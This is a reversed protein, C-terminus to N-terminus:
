SSRQVSRRARRRNLGSGSPTEQLLNNSMFSGDAQSPSAPDSLSKRSEDSTTGLGRAGAASDCMFCRRKVCLFYGLKLDDTQAASTNENMLRSGEPVGTQKFLKDRNPSDECFRSTRTRFMEVYLCQNLNLGDPRSPRGRQAPGASAVVHLRSRAAPRRSM